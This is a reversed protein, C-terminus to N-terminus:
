VQAKNENAALVQKDQIRGRNDFSYVHAEGTGIEVEAVKEDSIQELHKALARLTNGHSVVLANKGRIIEPLISELYYPVVRAHVEKLSEGQPIPVDWGRRLRMFEADGIQDKIQWKNKGTYIGYDRENLAASTFTKLQINLVKCMEDLTQQARLLKSVYASHIEVAKLAEAARRAEEIGEEVLGIDTLGTWKGLQNWQSTTHPLLILHAMDLSYM